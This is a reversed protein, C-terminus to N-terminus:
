SLGIWNLLRFFLVSYFYGLTGWVIISVIIGALIFYGDKAIMGLSLLLMGIGPFLNGFPLPLTIWLSNILGVVGLYPEWQPSSLKQLRPKLLPQLYNLAKSSLTVIKEFHDKSFKQTRIKEPLWIMPLRLIMQVSAFGMIVGLVASIGPITTLLLANPLAMLLLILGFSREALATVLEHITFMPSSHEEMFRHLVELISEPLKTSM